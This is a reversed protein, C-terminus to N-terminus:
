HIAKGMPLVWQPMLKLARTELLREISADESGTVLKDAGWSQVVARMMRWLRRAVIGYRRHDDAIWLGEGHVLLLAAWTGVIEGDQEVVAIKVYRPDLTRVLPALPCTTEALRGWEEPPLEREIM